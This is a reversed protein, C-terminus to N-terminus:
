NNCGTKRRIVKCSCYLAAAASNCHQKTGTSLCMGIFRSWKVNKGNLLTIYKNIYAAFTFYPSIFYKIGYIRAIHSNNLKNIVNFGQFFNFNFSGAGIFLMMVFMFVLMMLMFMFFLIVLM